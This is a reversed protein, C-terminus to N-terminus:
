LLALKSTVTEDVRMGNALGWDCAVGLKLLPKPFAIWSTVLFEWLPVTKHFFQDRAADSRVHFM